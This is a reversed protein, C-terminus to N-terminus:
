HAGNDNENEAKPPLLTKTIATEIAERKCLAIQKQAPTEASDLERAIEELQIKAVAFFCKRFLDM